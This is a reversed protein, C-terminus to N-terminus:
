QDAVSRKSARVPLIEPLERHSERSVAPEVVIQVIHLPQLQAVRDGSLRYEQIRLQRLANLIHQQTGAVAAVENCGSLKKCDHTAICLFDLRWQQREVEDLRGIWRDLWHVEM